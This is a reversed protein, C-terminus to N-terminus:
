SEFNQKHCEKEQAIADIKRQEEPDAKQLDDENAVGRHRAGAKDEISQKLYAHGEAHRQGEGCAKAECYKEKLVRKNDEFVHAIRCRRSFVVVSRKPDDRIDLDEVYISVGAVEDPLRHKM